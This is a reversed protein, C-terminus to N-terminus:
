TQTIVALGCGPSARRASLVVLVETWTTTERLPSVCLMRM